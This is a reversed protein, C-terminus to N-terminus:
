SASGPREKAIADLLDRRAAALQETAKAEEIIDDATPTLGSQLKQTVRQACDVYIAYAAKYRSRAAQLADSEM